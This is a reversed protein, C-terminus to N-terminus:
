DKSGRPKHKNNYQKTRSALEETSLHNFWTGTDILEKAISLYYQKETLGRGRGTRRLGELSHEPDDVDIGRLFLQVKLAKATMRDINKAYSIKLKEDSSAPSDSIEEVDNTLDITEPKPKLAPTPAPETKPTKASSTRSLASVGNVLGGLIVSTANGLFGGQRHAEGTQQEREVARRATEELETQLSAEHLNRDPEVRADPQINERRQQQLRAVNFTAGGLNQRMILERMQQEHIRNQQEKLLELSDMGDFFSGEQSAKFRTATRDPLQGTLTENEGILGIIEDYTPRRTLGYKSYPNINELVATAM